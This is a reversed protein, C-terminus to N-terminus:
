KDDDSGIPDQVRATDYRPYKRARSYVAPTPISSSSSSSEADEESDDSLSPERQRKGGRSLKYMTVSMEDGRNMLGKLKQDLTDQTEAVTDVKENIKEVLETLLTMQNSIIAGRVLQDFAFGHQDKTITLRFLLRLYSPVLGFFGHPPVATYVDTQCNAYFNNQHHMYHLSAAEEDLHILEVTPDLAEVIERVVDLKLHPKSLDSTSLTWHSQM